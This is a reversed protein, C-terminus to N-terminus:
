GVVFDKMSDVLVGVGPVLGPFVGMGIFTGVTAGVLLGDSRGLGTTTLDM